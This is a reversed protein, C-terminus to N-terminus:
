KVHSEIYDIEAQTLNFYNYLDSDTWTKIPLDPLRRVSNNMNSSRDANVFFRYLKSTLLKRVLNAERMSRCPYGLAGIGVGSGTEDEIPMYYDLKTEHYYYSTLNIIVKITKRVDSSRM